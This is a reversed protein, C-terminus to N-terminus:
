MAVEIKFSVTPLVQQERAAKQLAYHVRHASSWETFNVRMPTASRVEESSVQMRATALIQDMLSGAEVLAITLAISTNRDKSPSNGHDNAHVRLALTDHYQCGERSLLLESRNEYQSTASHYHHHNNTMQTRYERGDNEVIFKIYIRAATWTFLPLSGHLQIESVLFTCLLHQNYVRLNVNGQQQQDNRHHQLQQQLRQHKLFRKIPYKSWSQLIFITSSSVADVDSKVEHILQDLLKMPPSLASRPTHPSHQNRLLPLHPTFLIKHRACYHAAAQPNIALTASRLLLTSLSIKHNKPLGFIWIMANIKSLYQHLLNSTSMQENSNSNNNNTQENSVPANKPVHKYLAQLQQYISIAWESGIMEKLM